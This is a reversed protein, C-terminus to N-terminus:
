KPKSKYLHAVTVAEFMRAHYRNRNAREQAHAGTLAPYLAAVHAMIDGTNRVGPLASKIEAKTTYEVMCGHYAIMKQLRKILTLIAETHHTLPPIKVVVTTVGHTRVYHDYRSVIRAAKRESWEGKFSLTSWRVLGDGDLIAIGSNRTGISIGLIIM